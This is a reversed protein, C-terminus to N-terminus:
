GLQLDKLKIPKRITKKGNRLVILSNDNEEEGKPIRFTIGGM